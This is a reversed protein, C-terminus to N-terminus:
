SLLFLVAWALFFLGALFLWRALASAPMPGGRFAPDSWYLLRRCLIPPVNEVFAILLSRDLQLCEEPRLLPREAVSYSNGSGRNINVGANTSVGSHQWSRGENESYNDLVQTYSGLMGSIKQATELSNPALYLQTSCNDHILTPKDKFAAKVQSDSQYALLLRVGASRGRILGEELSPLAGLASAEDLLCLVEHKSGSRGIERVLTAVWCRLLNRQADLFEPPIQLFLTVGPKLLDNVSFTSHSLSRAVSESDLFCLQRGVTSLIGSKEKDKFGEVQHGMRAPIGGLAKLEEVAGALLEQNCAINRVTNLSREQGEFRLLVLVLLATIVVVANENWHPDTENGTRVVLAEALARADDVLTPSNKPIADCPNFADKGGNWPALHIIRQGMRERRRASIQYLDGKTDFVVCSGRSYSLLQPLIVSVGKGSGSAGTLLIHCFTPIRILKGDKCTRGLVLGDGQFMQARRMHETNAFRATGYASTSPRWRKRMLAAIAVFAVFLLVIFQQEASGSNQHTM